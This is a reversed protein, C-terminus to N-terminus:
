QPREGRALAHLRQVARLLRMKVASESLQLIASVDATSLDELYRLVLIERDREALRDLAQKLILREEDRKMRESPGTDRSVFREALELVSGEPIGYPYERNVTRRDAKIHRRYAMGIQDMALQRLWPYLPLPPSALYDDMRRTAEALVEQVIDSPDVRHIIRPDLRIAIMRRLKARHRLLLLDRAAYDGRAASQILTNTTPDLEPV